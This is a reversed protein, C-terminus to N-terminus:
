HLSTKTGVRCVIITGISFLPATCVNHQHWMVNLSSSSYQEVAASSSPFLSETLTSDHSILWCGKLLDFGRYFSYYCQGKSLTKNYWVARLYTLSSCSTFFDFQFTSSRYLYQSIELMCDIYIYLCSHCMYAILALQPCDSFVLQGEPALVLGQMHKSSLNSNWLRFSSKFSFSCIHVNVAHHFSIGWYM